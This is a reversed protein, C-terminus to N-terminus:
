AAPQTPNPSEAKEAKENHTLAAVAAGGVTTGLSILASRVDSAGSIRALEFLVVVIGLLIVVRVFSNNLYALM